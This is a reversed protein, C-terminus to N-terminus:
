GSSEDADQPTHTHRWTKVPHPLKFLLRHCCMFIGTFVLAAAVLGVVAWLAETYWGFRGFHLNSLWLLVRDGFRLSTTADPPELLDVLANFANPFAFYVGSITWVALFLFFWFGMAAHLDWNLRAFTARWDVSLSRRWHAIGPWWIAAGTLCLLTACIAAIGNVSRGTTGFLLNEHLDVLWEVARSVSSDASASRELQNRFVIASGSLSMLLIYLGIAALLVFLAPLLRRARRAWFHRLRITGSRAWEKMLLMTILFGSLVFFVNVSIIGGAAWAFGGHNAMIGLISVARVGDLAPMYRLRDDRGPAADGNETESM